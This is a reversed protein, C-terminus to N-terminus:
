NVRRCISQKDSKGRKSLFFYNYLLLGNSFPIRLHKMIFFYIYFKNNRNYPLAYVLIEVQAAYCKGM